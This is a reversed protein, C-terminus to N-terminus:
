NESAVLLLRYYMRLKKLDDTEIMRHIKARLEEASDGKGQYFFLDNLSLDLHKAIEAITDLPPTDIEGTEVRGVYNAANGLKESLETQTLGKAKRREALRERFLKADTPNLSMGELSPKSPVRACCANHTKTSAMFLMIRIIPHSANLAFAGLVM